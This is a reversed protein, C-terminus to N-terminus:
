KNGDKNEEEIKKMYRGVVRVIGYISIIFAIGTLTLFIWPKTGYHADLIKGFILALVVPAIVWTSVETFLEIAVAWNSKNKDDGM